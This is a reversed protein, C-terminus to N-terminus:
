HYRELACIITYSSKKVICLPQPFICEFPFSLEKFADSNRGCIGKFHIVKDSITQNYCTELFLM